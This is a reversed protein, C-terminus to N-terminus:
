CITQSEPENNEAFTENLAPAILADDIVTDSECLEFDLISQLDTAFRRYRGQPARMVIDYLFSVFLILGYIFLIILLGSLGFNLVETVNIEKDLLAGLIVASIPILLIEMFKGFREHKREIKEELKDNMTNLRAILESFINLSIECDNILYKKLKNCYSKYSELDDESNKIQHRETCISVAICLAIYIGALVTEVISLTNDKNGLFGIVIFAVLVVILSILLVLIKIPIRFIMKFVTGEEKKLWDKYCYLLNNEM